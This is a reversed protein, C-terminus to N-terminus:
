LDLDARSNLERTFNFIMNQDHLWNLFELIYGDLQLNNKVKETYWHWKEVNEEVWPTGKGEVELEERYMRLFCLSIKIVNM